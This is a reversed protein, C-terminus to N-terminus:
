RFGCRKIGACKDALCIEDPYADDFKYDLLRTRWRSIKENELGIKAIEKLGSEKIKENNMIKRIRM